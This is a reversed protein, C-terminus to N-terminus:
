LMTDPELVDLEIYKAVTIVLLVHSLIFYPCKFDPEDFFFTHQVEM